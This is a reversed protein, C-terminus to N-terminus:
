NTDTGRRRVIVPVLVGYEAISAKLEDLAAATSRRGPSFRIPHSRPEVPNRPRHRALEFGARRSEGLLAALGRGLGRKPTSM